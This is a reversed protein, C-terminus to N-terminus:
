QEICILRALQQCEAINHKSWAENAKTLRGRSGKHPKSTTSWESCREGDAAPSGNPETGTWAYFPNDVIHAGTELVNIPALLFGDVLGPWSNAIITTNPLIFPGQPKPNWTAPSHTDDSLWARFNGANAINANLAAQACAADAAEVGGAGIKGQFSASTAFVMNGALACTMSCPASGKGNEDGLDCEEQPKQVIGDGCHPGKTCTVPVCGDYIGAQNAEGDDCEEVDLWTHGDGCTAKICSKLCSSSNNNTEEGYDCEEGIVEQLFGDGCFAKLCDTTCFGDDANDSGLDCM